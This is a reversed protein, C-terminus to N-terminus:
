YSIKCGIFYRRPLGPGYIYGADRSVGKDFDKQYANFINQVGANLQLSTSKYLPIDYAVKMNIDWFDPTTEERDEPIYGALHQVLMSGTYTGTLAVSLREIPTLTATFYGYVDPSRFMKKQPAINPNDSWTEAEKYRSQQYTAGAQLQAWKYAVKAELNIGMVRAGKKNTRVFVLNGQADEGREDLFFVDKLDNYFGEILFNTQVDGFRKYYDASLSLSQSTEKKLNPDIEILM